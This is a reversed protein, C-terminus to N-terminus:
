ASKTPGPANKLARRIWSTTSAASVPNWRGIRDARIGFCTSQHGVTRILGVHKTLETGVRATNEFAGLRRVQRDHLRSLELKHDVQICGTSVAEVYRWRQEGAGVLHDLSVARLNIM